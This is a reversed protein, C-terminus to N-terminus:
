ASLPAPAPESVAPLRVVFEAGHGPTSNLSISGGHAEVIDKVLALGLGTGHVQDSVAQRGRYFPDFVQRQEDPPIGPGHDAVRIEVAGDAAAAFVGVWGGGEAGYKVANEILNRLAHELALEDALIVPLDPDIHTELVAGADRAAAASSQQSKEVLLAVRVPERRRVAVGAKTSAFRLVQEVLAQLKESEDQILRGYREVQEPRSALRGRLNYAATRIVTLPTRFEHSVGAVFNMQLEALRQAQRSFRVMLAVTAVILLLLGASVALNRRRAQEVLAELSGARHRVLLTWGPGTLSARQPGPPGGRFARGGPPPGADRRPPPFRRGGDRDDPGRPGAGPPSFADRLLAVAADPADRVSASSAAASTFITVPPFGTTEVVADYDLPGGQGLYRHLLEPLISARVFDLNLELLLWDQADTPEARMGRLRPVELVSYGSASAGGRGASQPPQGLRDRVDGWDAPWAGSHFVATAPDMEEFTLSGERLRALAIRRFLAPHSVRWRAYRAAYAGEVGLRETEGPSPALAACANFVEEDFRTRLSDLDDHLQSQLRTREAESIEGIWRYQLVAVVACLVALLGLSAWSFWARRQLRDMFIAYRRGNPGGPVALLTKNLGAARKM